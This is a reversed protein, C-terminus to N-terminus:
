LDIVFNEDATRTGCTPNSRSMKPVGNEEVTVRRVEALAAAENRKLTGLIDSL